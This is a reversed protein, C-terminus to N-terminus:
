SKAYINYVDGDILKVSYKTYKPYRDDSDIQSINVVLENNIFGRVENLSFVEKLLLKTFKDYNNLAM